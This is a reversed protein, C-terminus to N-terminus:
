TKKINKFKPFTYIIKYYSNNYYKFVKAKLNIILYKKYFNKFRKIFKIINISKFELASIFSLILILFRFTFTNLKTNFKTLTIILIEKFLLLVLLTLILLTSV